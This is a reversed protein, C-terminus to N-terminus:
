SANWDTRFDLEDILEFTHRCCVDLDNCVDPIHRNGRQRKPRSRETTVICRLTPDALAYAILLPDENLQEIEDDTLNSAYGEDIVFNFLEIDVDESLLMSNRNDKLWVALRDNADSVKSYVERPVKVRNLRGMHVLWDWFQPIRSIPYYDRNADILVNADLIYLM